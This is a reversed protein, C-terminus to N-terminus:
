IYMKLNVKVRKFVNGTLTLINHRRFSARDRLSNVFRLKVSIYRDTLGRNEIFFTPKLLLCLNFTLWHFREPIYILAVADFASEYDKIVVLKNINNYTVVIPM